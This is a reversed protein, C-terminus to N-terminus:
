FVPLKLWESSLKVIVLIPIIELACLYLFLYFLSVNRSVSYTLLRVIRLFYFFGLLLFSGKLMIIGWQADIYPLVLLFPFVVLAFTKNFVFIHFFYARTEDQIKLFHAIIWAFIWKSLYLIVVIASLLLFAKLQGYDWIVFGKYDFWHSLLLGLSFFYFLNLLFSVRGIIINGEEFINMARVRNFASKMFTRVHRGFVTRLYLFFLVLGIVIGLMADTAKFAGESVPSFRVIENLERTYSKQEKTLKVLPVPRLSQFFGTGEEHYALGGHLANFSHPGDEKKIDRKQVAKWQKNVKKEVTGLVANPNFISLPRQEIKHYTFDPLFIHKDVQMKVVDPEKFRFQDAFSEDIPDVPEYGGKLSNYVPLDGDAVITFDQQQQQSNGPNYMLNKQYNVWM